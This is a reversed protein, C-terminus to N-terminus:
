VGELANRLAAQKRREHAVAARGAETVRYRYSVPVGNIIAAPETRKERGPILVREIYGATVLAKGTKEVLKAGQTRMMNTTRFGGSDVTVEGNAMIAAELFAYREPTLINM